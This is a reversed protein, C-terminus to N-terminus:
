YIDQQYSVVCQPPLDDDLKIVRPGPRDKSPPPSAEEDTVYQHLDGLGERHRYRPPM